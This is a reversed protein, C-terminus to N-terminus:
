GPGSANGGTTGIIDDAVFANDIVSEYFVLNADLHRKAISNFDLLASRLESSRLLDTDGQAIIENYTASTGSPQLWFNVKDILSLLNKNSASLEETLIM